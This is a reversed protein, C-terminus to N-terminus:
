FHLKSAERCFCMPKLESLYGRVAAHLLGVNTVCTERGRMEFRQTAMVLM